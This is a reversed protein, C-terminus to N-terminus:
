APYSGNLYGFSPTSNSSILVYNYHNYTASGEDLTDAQLTFSAESDLHFNISLDSLLQAFGAGPSSSVQVSGSTTLTGTVTLLGNTLLVSSIQSALSSAFVNSVSAQQFLSSNFGGANTSIQTLGIPHDIQFGQGDDTGTNVQTQRTLSTLAVQAQLPTLRLLLLVGLTCFVKM